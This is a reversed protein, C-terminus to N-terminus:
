YVSVGYVHRVVGKSEIIPTYCLQLCLEVSLHTIRRYSSHLNARHYLKDLM